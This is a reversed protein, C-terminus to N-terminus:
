NGQIGYFVFASVVLAALIMLVPSPKSPEPVKEKPAVDIDVDVNPTIMPPLVVVPPPLTPWVRGEIREIRRDQEQRYPMQYPQGGKRRPGCGGPGCDGPGQQRGQPGARWPVPKPNLNSSEYRIILGSGTSLATYLQELSVAMGETDGGSRANLLGVIREGKADFIASGSRGNAPVPLFHLRSDSSQLVHGQWGTAWAAKACGVSMITEGPQLATGRPAIPIAKPLMGGFAAEPIAILAADVGGRGTMIVQGTIARSQHGAKWFECRATGSNGVVHANTLVFVHGQSIEFVVGTGRDNGALVRCTADHCDELAGWAASACLMLVALVTGAAMLRFDRM